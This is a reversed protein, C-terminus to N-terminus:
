HYPSWRSRCTSVGAKGGPREESGSTPAAARTWRPHVGGTEAPRRGRRSTESAARSGKRALLQSCFGLIQLHGDATGYVTVNVRCHRGQLCKEGVKRAVPGIGGHLAADAVGIGCAM